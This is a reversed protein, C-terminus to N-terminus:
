TSTRCRCGPRTSCRARRRARRRHGHVGPRRRRQRVGRDARAADRGEAQARSESMLVMAAAGDTIGPRTAPTVTGSTTSFAAEAEGAGRAHHGARPHEDRDVVTVEGKPGAVEVPAIEKARRDWPRPRRRSALPLAFEDQEERSIGYRRALNEATEGMLLGCLPDLFGDRYMGDYVTANGMRYGSRMRDLLFPTRSM